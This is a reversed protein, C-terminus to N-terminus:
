KNNLKANLKRTIKRVSDTFESNSRIYGNLYLIISDRQSIRLQYQEIRDELQTIRRQKREDELEEKYDRKNTQRILATTLGVIAIVMCYLLIKMSPSKVEGIAKGLETKFM